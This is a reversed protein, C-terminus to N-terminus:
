SRRNSDRGPALLEREDENHIPKTDVRRLFSLRRITSVEQPKKEGKYRYVQRCHHGPADFIRREELWTQAVTKTHARLTVQHVLRVLISDCEEVKRIYENSFWSLYSMHSTPGDSQM